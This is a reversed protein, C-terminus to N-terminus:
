GKMVSASEPDDHDNCNHDGDGDDYDDDLAIHTLLHITLVSCSREQQHVCKCSLIIM